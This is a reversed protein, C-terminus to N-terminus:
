QYPLVNFGSPDADVGALNRYMNALQLQQAVECRLLHHVITAVSNVFDTMEKTPPKDKYHGNDMLTEVIAPMIIEELAEQYNTELERNLNWLISHYVTKALTVILQGPLGPMNTLYNALYDKGPQAKLKEKTAGLESALNIILQLNGNDMTAAAVPKDTKQEPGYLLAMPGHEKHAEKAKDVKRHTYQQVVQFSKHGTIAMLSQDSGDFLTCFTHRLTSSSGPLGVEKFARSVEDSWWHVRHPFLKGPGLTLLMSRVKPSIPVIRQGTKGTVKVSDFGIDEAELSVAEGIRIGTDSLLYLLIRIIPSHRPYELLQRLEELTLAWKEKPTRRPPVMKHFPNALALKEDLFIRQEIFNYFARLTRFAGHRREDGNSYSYIFAEIPEPETPLEPYQVAFARLYSSYWRITEQSLGRRECNVLYTHILEKTDM